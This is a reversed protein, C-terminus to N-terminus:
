VEEGLTALLRMVRDVHRQDAAPDLEALAQKALPTARAVDLEGGAARARYMEAELLAKLTQGRDSGPARLPVARAFYHQAQALGDVADPMPNSARELWADIQERYEATPGFNAGYADLALAGLQQLYYGELPGDRAARANQLAWDGISLARTYARGDPRRMLVVRVLRIFYEAAARHVDLALRPLPMALAAELALEARRLSFTADDEPERLWSQMVGRLYTHSLQCACEPARVERLAEDFEIEGSRLAAIVRELPGYGLPYDEPRDWLHQRTEELGILATHVDADDDRTSQILGLALSSLLVPHEFVYQVRDATTRAAILGDMQACVWISEDNETM